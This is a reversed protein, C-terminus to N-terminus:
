AAIETPAPTATSVTRFELAPDDGLSRSLSRRDRPYSQPRYWPEGPGQKPFLGAGRKVYGASIELIPISAMVHQPQRPTVSQYGREDMYNLLQCVRRCTLDAGLTWSQNVFGFAFAVNPVGSMM